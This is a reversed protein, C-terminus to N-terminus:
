TILDCTTSPSRRVPCRRCIGARAAPSSISVAHGFRIGLVEDGTLVGIAQGQSRHQVGDQGHQGGNAVHGHLRAPGTDRQQRRTAHEGDDLGGGAGPDVEAQPQGIHAGTAAQQDGPVDAAPRDVDPDRQGRGIVHIVLDHVPQGAGVPLAHHRGGTLRSCWAPLETVRDRHGHDDLSVVQWPQVAMRTGLTFVVGHVDPQPRGPLVVRGDRDGAPRPPDGVHPGAVGHGGTPLARDRHPLVVVPQVEHSRADTTLAGVAVEAQEPTVEVPASNRTNRPALSRSTSTSGSTMATAVRGPCRSTPRSPSVSACPSGTHARLRSM